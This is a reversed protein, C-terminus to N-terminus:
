RRKSKGHKKSASLKSQRRRRVAPSLAFMYRVNLQTLLEKFIGIINIDEKASTEIYRLNWDMIATREAIEQFATRTRRGSEINVEMDIKNGVLVIPVHEKGKRQIIQLQLDRVVEFSSRDSISYVLVFAHATDIALNRMAPFPYAGATDLIDLTLCVGDAEYEERHMDELTSNYDTIFRDHLFRNVICTKGVAAAGM